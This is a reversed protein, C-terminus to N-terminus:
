CSMRRCMKRTFKLYNEVSEADKGARNAAKIQADISHFQYASRVKEDDFQTQRKQLRQEEFVSDHAEQREYFANEDMLSELGRTNYKKGELQDQKDLIDYIKNKIHEYEEEQFWLRKPDEVMETVSQIDQVQADDKFSISTRKQKREGTPLTLTMEGTYGISARRPVGSQKLSSRRAMRGGEGELRPTPAADGYGYLDEEAQVPPKKLPSEPWRLRSDVKEGDSGKILGDVLVTDVFKSKASAM